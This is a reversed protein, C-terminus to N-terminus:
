ESDSIEICEVETFVNTRTDEENTFIKMPKNKTRIQHNSRYQEQLNEQTQEILQEMSQYDERTLRHDGNQVNILQERKTSVFTKTQQAFKLRQDIVLLHSDYISNLRDLDEQRSQEFTKFKLRTQNFLNAIPNTLHNFENEFDNLLKKEHEIRHQECVSLHCHYKCITNAELSCTPHECFMKTKARKEEEHEEFCLCIIRTYKM